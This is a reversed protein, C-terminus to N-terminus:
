QSPPQIGKEAREQKTNGYRSATDTLVATADKITDHPYVTTTNTITSVYKKSGNDLEIYEGGRSGKEVFKREVTGDAQKIKVWSKLEPDPQRVLKYRDSSGFVGDSYKSGSGYSEM